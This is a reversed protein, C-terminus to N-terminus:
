QRQEPKMVATLQQLIAALDPVDKMVGAVPDHALNNM